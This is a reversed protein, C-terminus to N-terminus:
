GSPYYSILIKVTSDIDELVMRATASDGEIYRYYASKLVVAPLWGPKAALKADIKDKAQQYEKTVWHTSLEQVFQGAELKEDASQAILRITLFMITALVIVLTLVTCSKRLM